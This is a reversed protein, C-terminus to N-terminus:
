VHSLSFYIVNASKYGVVCQNVIVIFSCLLKCMAHDCLRHTSTVCSMSTSALSHHMSVSMVIIPLIVSDILNFMCACFGNAISTYIGQLAFYFHCEAYVDKRCFMCDHRMKENWCMVIISSNKLTDAKAIECTHLQLHQEHKLGEQSSLTKLHMSCIQLGNYTQPLSMNSCVMCVIFKENFILTREMQVLWDTYVSKILLLM